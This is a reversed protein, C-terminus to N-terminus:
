SCMECLWAVYLNNNYDIFCHGSHNDRELKIRSISHSLLWRQIVRGENILVTVDGQMCVSLHCQLCAVVEHSTKPHRKQLLLACILLTAKFELAGAEGFFM